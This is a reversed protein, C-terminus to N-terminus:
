SVRDQVLGVSMGKLILEALELDDSDDIDLGSISDITFGITRGEVYFLPDQEFAAARTLIIAGNPYYVRRHLQRQSRSTLNEMGFLSSIRQSSNDLALVQDLGCPLKSLSVVSPADPDQLALDIATQLDTLRRLPSTPMLCAILEFTGCRQQMLPIDNTLVEAVRTTDQALGTPRELVQAGLLMALDRIAPAETSVFVADFLGSDRAFRISHEVLPKGGLLVMNKGAIGRSREKAPIYAILGGAM